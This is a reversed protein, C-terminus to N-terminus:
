ALGAAGVVFQAAEEGVSGYSTHGGTPNDGTGCIMDTTGCFQQVKDAALDGVKQTKLPDGFLVAGAVDASSVGQASFVNHVVMAGQSYGSLVIKTSPCQEKAAKISSAMASGGSGGLNANGAADAPYDVGQITVRDAGLSSRLSSFMKPGAIIGVNGPEGTGRAFIITLDTCCNKDAVGNETSGGQTAQPTCDSPVTGAAETATPQTSNDIGTPTPTVQAASTPRGPSGSPLGGGSPIGTPLIGGLSPLSIGSGSGPGGTPKPLGPFLDGISPLSFQPMPRADSLGALVLVSLPTYYKM